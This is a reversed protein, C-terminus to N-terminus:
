RRHTPTQPPQDDITITQDHDRLRNLTPHPWGHLHSEM